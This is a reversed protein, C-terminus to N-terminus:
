RQTKSDTSLLAAFRLMRSEVTRRFGSEIVEGETKFTRTEHTVIRTGHEELFRRLHQV